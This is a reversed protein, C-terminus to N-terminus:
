EAATDPEPEKSDGAKRTWCLHLWCNRETSLLVKDFPIDQLQEDRSGLFARYMQLLIDYFLACLFVKLLRTSVLAGLDMPLPMLACVGELAIIVDVAIRAVAMWSFCSPRELVEQFVCDMKSHVLWVAALCTKVAAESMGGEKEKAVLTLKLELWSLCMDRKHKAIQPHTLGGLHSNGEETLYFYAALGKRHNEIDCTIPQVELAKAERLALLGRDILDQDSTTRHSSSLAQCSFFNCVTLWRYIDHRLLVREADSGDLKKAITAAADEVKEKVSRISAEVQDLWRIKQRVFWLLFVAVIVKAAIHAIYCKSLVVEVFTSGDSTSSIPGGPELLTKQLVGHAILRQILFWVLAMAATMFLAYNVSLLPMNAWGPASRFVGPASRASGWVEPVPAKIAHSLAEWTPAGPGVRRFGLFKDGTPRRWIRAGLGWNTAQRYAASLLILSAATAAVQAVHLVREGSSASAHVPPRGVVVRQVHVQTGAAGEPVKRLPPAAGEQLVDSSAQKVAPVTLNSAKSCASDATDNGHELTAQIPKNGTKSPPHNRYHRRAAACGNSQLLIFFALAAFAHKYM